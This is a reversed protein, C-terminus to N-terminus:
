RRQVISASLPIYRLYKPVVGGIPSDRALYRTGWDSIMGLSYLTLEARPVTIHHPTPTTTHYALSPYDSGITKVYTLARRIDHSLDHSRFDKRSVDYRSVKNRLLSM